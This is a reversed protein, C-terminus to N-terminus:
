RALSCDPSLSGHVVDAARRKVLFSDFGSAQSKITTPRFTSSGHETFCRLPAPSKDTPAFGLDIGNLLCLGKLYQSLLSFRIIQNLARRADIKYKAEKPNIV